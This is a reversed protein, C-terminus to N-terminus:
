ISDTTLDLFDLNSRFDRFCLLVDLEIQGETILVKEVRSFILLREIIAFDRYSFVSCFTATRLLLILLKHV